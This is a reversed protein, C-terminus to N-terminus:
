QLYELYRYVPYETLVHHQLRVKPGQSLSRPDVNWCECAYVVQPPMMAASNQQVRHVRKACAHSLLGPRCQPKAARGCGSCHCKHKACAHSLSRPHCQPMAARSCGTCTCLMHMPIYDLTANHSRWGAAGPAITSTSQTHMPYYDPAADRSRQEAAGLEPSICAFVVQCLM